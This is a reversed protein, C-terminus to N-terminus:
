ASQRTDEVAVPACFIYGGSRVTKILEPTQPDAEIKRRLRSVQVDISRDFPSAVRGRALDLLQDRTLVHQPRELFALLLDHEGATLDVLAGEPNRLTRRVVDLRWNEFVYTLGAVRTESAADGTRRLVARIRALLERPSFPKCVYDDAGIELGIIRDTEGSMATLLVVPIKSTGRLRRCLSLGDEGPMMVDLVILDFRGAEVAAFMAVGDAVETVRMGNDTLFRKLSIRIRRDDDVVLIHPTSAM